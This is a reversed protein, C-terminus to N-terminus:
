YCFLERIMSESMKSMDFQTGKLHDLNGDDMFNRCKTLTEDDLDMFAWGKIIRARWHKQEIIM